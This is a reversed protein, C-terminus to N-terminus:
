QKVLKQVSAGNETEVRVFYIGENLGSVDITIEEKPNHFDKKILEKGLINYVSITRASLGKVFFQFKAPNPYIELEFKEVPQVYVTTCLVSDIYGGGEYIPLNTVSSNTASVILNIRSQTLAPSSITIPVHSASCTTNGNEDTKVLTLNFYNGSDNGEGAFVCGSDATWILSNTTGYQFPDFCKSWLTDGDPTTKIYLTRLSDVVSFYGYGGAIVITSDPQQAIRLSNDFDAGGYGKVWQLLGMSDTKLISLDPGTAGADILGTALIGGDLSRIAHSIRPPSSGGFSNTWLSDGNSDLKLLMAGQGGFCAVIFGGDPTPSITKGTTARATEWFVRTNLTDGNQDTRIIYISSQGNLTGFSNTFGAIIFGGGPLVCIGNGVEDNAGGYGKAWQANGGADTKLLFLENSGNDFASGTIIFGSDPTQKVDLGRTSTALEYTKSWISDGFSNFKALFVDLYVTGVVVYNGDSCQIIAAAEISQLNRQFTRQWLVQAQTNSVFQAFFIFLIHKAKM